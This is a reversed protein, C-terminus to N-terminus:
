LDGYLTTAISELTAREASPPTIFTPLAAALQNVLATELRSMGHNVGALSAPPSVGHEAATANTQLTEWASLFAALTSDVNAADAAISM